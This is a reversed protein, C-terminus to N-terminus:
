LADIAAKKLRKIEKRTMSRKKAADKEAKCLRNNQVKEKANLRNKMKKNKELEKERTKKKMRKKVTKSSRRRYHGTGGMNKGNTQRIALKGTSEVDTRTSM